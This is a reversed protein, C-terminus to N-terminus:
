ILDEPLAFSALATEFSRPEVRELPLGVRAVFTRFRTPDGVVTTSEHTRSQLQGFRLLDRGGFHEAIRQAFQRITMATGSCLNFTEGVPFVGLPLEALAVLMAAVDGVFSYDRVDAGDTLDLTKRERCARIIQPVLKHDGEGRGFMGFPRCLTWAPRPSLQAILKSAAAKSAGYIGTPCLPHLETLLELASGYEYATGVYVIKEVSTEAAAEHVCVAGGTNVLIARLADQQRYDVGYAACHVIADCAVAEIVDKIQQADCVDCVVAEVRCAYPSSLAHDKVENAQSRTTCGVVVDHGAKHATRVVWRGLFGRAGTVLLKM